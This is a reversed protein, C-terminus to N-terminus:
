DDTTDDDADVEVDVFFRGATNSCKPCELRHTGKPAVAIWAFGCYFCEAPGADHKDDIMM